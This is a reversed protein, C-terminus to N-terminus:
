HKCYAQLVKWIASLVLERELVYSKDFLFFTLLSTRSSHIRKDPLLYWPLDILAFRQPLIARGGPQPRDDREQIASATIM